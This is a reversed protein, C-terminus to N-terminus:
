GFTEYRLLNGQKKAKTIFHKDLNHVNYREKANDARDLWYDNHKYALTDNESLQYNLQGLLKRSQLLRRVNAECRIFAIWLSTLSVLILFLAATDKIKFLATRM